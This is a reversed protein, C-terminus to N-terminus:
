FNEEQINNTVTFTGSNPYTYTGEYSSLTLGGSVAVGEYIIEVDGNEKDKVRFKYQDNVIIEANKDDIKEKSSL